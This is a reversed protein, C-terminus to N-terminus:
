TKEERSVESLIDIDGAKLKEVVLDTRNKFYIVKLHFFLITIILIEWACKM